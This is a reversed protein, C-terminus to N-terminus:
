RCHTAGLPILIPPFARIIGNPGSCWRRPLDRDTGANYGYISCDSNRDGTAIRFYDPGPDVPGSDWQAVYQAGKCDVRFLYTNAYAAPSIFIALAAILVFGKGFGLM